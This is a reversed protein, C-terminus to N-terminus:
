LPRYLPSLKKNDPSEVLLLSSWYFTDDNQPESIYDVRQTQPVSLSMLVSIFEKM